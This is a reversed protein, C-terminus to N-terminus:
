TTQEKKYVKDKDDKHLAAKRERERRKVQTRMKGGRDRRAYVILQPITSSTINFSPLVRQILSLM